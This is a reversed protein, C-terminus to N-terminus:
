KKIKREKLKTKRIKILVGVCGMKKKKEEELVKVKRKRKFSLFYKL